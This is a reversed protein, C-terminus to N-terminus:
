HGDRTRRTGPLGRRDARDGLLECELVDAAPVDEALEGGLRPQRGDLEVGAGLVVGLDVAVQVAPERRDGALALVHQELRPMSMPSRLM